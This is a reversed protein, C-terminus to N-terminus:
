FVVAFAVKNWTAADMSVWAFMHHTMFAAMAIKLFSATGLLHVRNIGRQYFNTLFLAIEYFKAERVPIAVGDYELGAIRSFFIDLHRLDYAQIPQFLQAEPCLMSKWIASEYAWRVNIPLKKNFELEREATTKFKGVPFDLGIVIDAQLSSAFEMVHKPALNIEKSPRYILPRNPEHTIAWEKNEANLLEFGGSDVMLNNPQADQRLSIAKEIRRPTSGHEPANILYAKAKHPAQEARCWCCFERTKGDTNM